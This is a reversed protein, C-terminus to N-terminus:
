NGYPSDFYTEGYAVAEQLTMGTFHPANLYRGSKQDDM